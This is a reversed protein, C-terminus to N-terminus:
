ATLKAKEIAADFAALVEAHTHNDNFYVLSGGVTEYLLRRALPDGGVVHLAGSSCWCAATSSTFDVPDGNCDRAYEGRTWSKPKEILKRAAELTELVTKSGM